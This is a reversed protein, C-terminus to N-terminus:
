AVGEVAVLPRAPRRATLHDVVIRADHRVGDIFSSSRRTQWPMGMVYLGPAPTVGARHRIDGDPGLVPVHLWPYSRRYGTAWLVTRINERRLHLSGPTATATAPLPELPDDPQAKMGGAAGYADIRRLVRRARGDAEAVTGALDRVFVAEDGDVAALRGALHVGYRRLAALHVDVGDVGGVLQLSPERRTHQSVEDVTRDLTGMRSLWWMVDHGRYRRPLRAHRGVALVVDRGALALEAAIQVGSSSAGVVLVNGDPLGEPRRYLSASAQQVHGPLGSAFSPVRPRDSSGTAVIVNRASWTGNTSTVAYGDSHTRVDEVTEFVVPAAFSTAYATVYEAVAPATMFGDPDAGGHEFDEYGFGPLRTMWNPTLLRLSDWRRSRWSEAVRGRELVVHDRGADTLLRSAALGAHGAGIVVTDTKRM